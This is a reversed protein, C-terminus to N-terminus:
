RGAVRRCSQPDLISSRPALISSRGDEIRSGRDEIRALVEALIRAQEYIPDVLGYVKGRHQACEGIAFIAPDSTRLQDDVVIAREILLGAAKAEDVNPRIGCSIVVMDTDLTSGDKFRLGTVQGDGLIQTTATELM